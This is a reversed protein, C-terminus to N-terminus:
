RAGAKKLAEVMVPLKREQAIQLATKGDKDRANLDAKHALLLLAIEKFSNEINAKADELSGRYNIVSPRSVVTMHLPTWKGRNEVMNVEAQHALLLAVIEKNYKKIASYLPTSGDRSRANIEAKNAILLEVIAKNGRGAAVHLATELNGDDKATLNPHHALLLKVIELDGSFVALHLPPQGGAQKTNVTSSDAALAAKVRDLNRSQLAQYLEESRVCGVTVLLFFAAIRTKMPRYFTQSFKRFMRSKVSRSALWFRKDNLWSPTFSGFIVMALITGNGLQLFEFCITEHPNILRSHRGSSSATGAPKEWGFGATFCALPWRLGPSM